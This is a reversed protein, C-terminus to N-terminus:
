VGHGGFKEAPLYLYSGATFDFYRDRKAKIVALINDSLNKLGPRVVSVTFARGFSFFPIVAAVAVVVANFGGPSFDVFNVVVATGFQFM